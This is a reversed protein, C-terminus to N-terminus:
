AENDRELLSPSRAPSNRSRSEKTVTSKRAISDLFPPNFKHNLDLQGVFLGFHNRRSELRNLYAIGLPIDQSRNSGDPSFFVNGIGLVAKSGIFWPQRRGLNQFV